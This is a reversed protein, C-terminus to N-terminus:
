TLSRFVDEWKKYINDISYKELTKFAELSVRKRLNESKLQVLNDRWDELSHCIFGNIGSTITEQYSRLPSALVPLGLAMATTVKTNSKCPYNWHDQPCVCIDCSAMDVFWSSLKWPITSNPRNSIEIYEMGVSNIIPKLVNEVLPANGGMGSWVVKLPTNSFNDNKKIPFDEYPDKIIIAKKGYNISEISALATSCCALYDCLKKTEELVPIGRINESYDHVLHKGISKVYKALALEEEGFSMFVVVDPYIIENVNSVIKSFHGNEILKQHNYLCRLRFSPNDKPDKFATFVKDPAYWFIRM